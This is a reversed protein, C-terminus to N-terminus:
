RSWGVAPRSAPQRCVSGVASGPWRQTSSARPVSPLDRGAGRAWSGLRLLGPGRHPWTGAWPKRPLFQGLLNHQSLRVEAELVKQRSRGEQFGIGPGLARCTRAGM